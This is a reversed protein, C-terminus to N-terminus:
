SNQCIAAEKERTARLEDSLGKERSKMENLQQSLEAHLIESDRVASLHAEQIAKSLLTDHETKLEKLKVEHENELAAKAKETAEIADHRAQTAAISISAAADSQPMKLKQNLDDGLRFELLQREEALGRRLTEMEERHQVAAEELSKQAQSDAHAQFQQLKQENDNQLVTRLDNARSEFQAVASREFEEISQDCKLKMQEIEEQGSNTANEM